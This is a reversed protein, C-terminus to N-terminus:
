FSMKILYDGGMQDFDPRVFRRVLLDVNKFITLVTIVDEGIAYEMLSGVFYGPKKDVLPDAFAIRKGDIHSIM